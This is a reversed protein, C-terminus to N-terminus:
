EEGRVVVPVDPVLWAEAHSLHLMVGRLVYRVFLSSFSGAAILGAWSLADALPQERMRRGLLALPMLALSAILWAIMVASATTSELDPIIRWGIYAHLLALIALWRGMSSFWRVRMRSRRAGAARSTAAMIM